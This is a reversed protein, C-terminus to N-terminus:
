ERELNNKHMTYIKNCGAFYGRYDPNGQKLKQLAREPGSNYGILQMMLLNRDVVGEQKMYNKAEALCSTGLLINTDIDFLMDYNYKIGLDKCLYKATSPIVQMLGTDRSSGVLTKNFPDERTEWNIISLVLLPDIGEYKNSVKIIASTIHSADEPVYQRIYSEMYRTLKLKKTEAPTPVPKLVEGRSTEISAKRTLAMTTEALSTDYTHRIAVPIPVDNVAIKTSEVITQSKQGCGALCITLALTLPLLRKIM